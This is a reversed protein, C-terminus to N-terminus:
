HMSEDDCNEMEQILKIIIETQEEVAATADICVTDQFHPTKILRHYHELTPGLIERTEDTDAPKDTRAHIRALSVELPVDFFLTLDPHGGIAFVADLKEIQGADIGYTMAFALHCLAHRDCLVYDYGEQKLQPLLTLYHKAFDFGMNVRIEYQTIMESQYLHFPYYAVKSTYVMYGASTLADKVRNLQTTKGAGDIGCFAIIRM